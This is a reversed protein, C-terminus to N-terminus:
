SYGLTEEVSCFSNWLWGLELGRSESVYEQINEYVWSNRCFCGGRGEQKQWALCIHTGLIGVKALPMHTHCKNENVFCRVIIRDHSRLVYKRVWKFKQYEFSIVKTCLYLSHLYFHKRQKRVKSCSSSSSPPGPFLLPKLCHLFGGPCLVFYLQIMNSPSLALIWFARKRLFSWLFFLILHLILQLLSCCICSRSFSILFSSARWRNLTGSSDRLWLSEPIFFHVWKVLTGTYVLFLPLM